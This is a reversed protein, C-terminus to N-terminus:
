SDEYAVQGPAPCLHLLLFLFIAPIQIPGPVPKGDACSYEIYLHFPIAPFNIRHPLIESRCMGFWGVLLNVICQIQAINM